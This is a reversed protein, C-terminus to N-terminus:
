HQHRYRVVFLGAALIGAAPLDLAGVVVTAGLSTWFAADVIQEPVRAHVLPVVYDTSASADSAPEPERPEVPGPSANSVLSTSLGLEDDICEVDPVRTTTM